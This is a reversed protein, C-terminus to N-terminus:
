RWDHGYRGLRFVVDTSDVFVDDFADWDRDSIEDRVRAEDDDTGKADIFGSGFDVLQFPPTAPPQM